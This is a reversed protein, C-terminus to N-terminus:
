AEEFGLIDIYTTGSAISSAPKANQGKIRIRKELFLKKYATRSITKLEKNRDQERLSQLLFTDLRQAKLSTTLVVRFSNEPKEPVYATNM